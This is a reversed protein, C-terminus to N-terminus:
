ILIFTIDINISTTQDYKIHAKNDALKLMNSIPEPDCTKFVLNIGPFYM